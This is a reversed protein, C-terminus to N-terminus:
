LALPGLLSYGAAIFVETMSVHDLGLGGWETPAHPAVLGQGHGARRNADSPTTSGFPSARHELPILEDRVFAATRDRLALQDDTLEFDIM